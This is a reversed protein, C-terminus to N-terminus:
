LSDCYFKSHSITLTYTEEDKAVSILESTNTQYNGVQIGETVLSTKSETTAKIIRSNNEFNETIDIQITSDTLVDVLAIQSPTIGLQGAALPTLNNLTVACWLSSPNASASLTLFLFSLAILCKKM